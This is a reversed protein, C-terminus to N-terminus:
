PLLANFEENQLAYKIFQKKELHNSNFALLMVQFSLSDM